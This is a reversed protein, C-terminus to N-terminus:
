FIFFRFKTKVKHAKTTALARAPKESPHTNFYLIFCIENLFVYRSPETIFEIDRLLLLYLMNHVREGITM